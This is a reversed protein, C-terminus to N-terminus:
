LITVNLTIKVSKMKANLTKPPCIMLIEFTNCAPNGGMKSNGHPRPYHKGCELVNLGSFFSVKTFQSCCYQTIRSMIEIIYDSM